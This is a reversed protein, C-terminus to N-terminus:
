RVETPEAASVVSAMAWWAGGAQAEFCDFCGEVVKGGPLTVPWPDTTTSKCVPCKM